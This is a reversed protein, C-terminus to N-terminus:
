ALLSPDPFIRSPLLALSDSACRGVLVPTHPQHSNGAGFYMVSIVYAGKTLYTLSDSQM